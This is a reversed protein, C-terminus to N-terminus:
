LDVGHHEAMPMIVMGAPNHWKCIDIRIRTDVHLLGGVRIIISIVAFARLAFAVSVDTYVLRYRRERLRYLNLPIM